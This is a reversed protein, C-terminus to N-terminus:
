RVPPTSRHIEWSLASPREAVIDPAIWLVGRDREAGEAPTDVSDHV